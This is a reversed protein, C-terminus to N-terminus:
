GVGLFLIEQNEARMVGSRFKERALGSLLFGTMEDDSDNVPLLFSKEAASSRKRVCFIVSVHPFPRSQAM